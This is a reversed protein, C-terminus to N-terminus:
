CLGLSACHCLFSPLPLAQTLTDAVNDTSSVHPLFKKKKEICNRIHHYRNDIHKERAYFMQNATLIQVTM